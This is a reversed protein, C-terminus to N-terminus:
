LKLANFGIFEGYIENLERVFRELSFMEKVKAYGAEGLSEAWQPNKMMKLIAAALETASGPEVCLGTAGEQVIETLGGTRSVILPKKQALAEVAVLGFPEQLSPVVVIDFSAFWNQPNDVFDHFVVKEALGLQEALLRMKTLYKGGQEFDRGVLHAKFDLKEHSVLELAKLLAPVGKRECIQGIFGLVPFGSKLEELPEAPEFWWDYIGMYLMRLKRRSFKQNIMHNLAANSHVMIIDACHLLARKLPSFPIIDHIDALFPYDALKAAAASAISSRISYGHLLKVNHKKIIKYIFATNKWYNVQNRPKFERMYYTIGREDLNKPLQEGVGCVVVPFVKERDLYDLISLMTLEAGGTFGVPVTFLIGPLKDM